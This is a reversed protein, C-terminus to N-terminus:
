LKFGKEGTGGWHRSVHIHLCKYSHTFQMNRACTATLISNPVLVLSTSLLIGQTRKPRGYIFLNEYSDSQWIYLFAMLRILGIM